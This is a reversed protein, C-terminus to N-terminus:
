YGGLGGHSDSANCIQSTVSPLIGFDLANGTSAFTIFDIKDVGAPGDYGGTFLGRM